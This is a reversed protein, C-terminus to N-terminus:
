YDQGVSATALVVGLVKAAGAQRLTRAAERLTSGSTFLLPVWAILIPNSSMAGYGGDREKQSVM